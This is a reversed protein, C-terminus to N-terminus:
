QEDYRTELTQLILNLDYGNITGSYDVDALKLDAATLQSSLKGFLDTVSKTDVADVKGDQNLDGPPLPIGTFDFSYETPTMYQTDACPGTQGTQQCFRVAVHKEGKIQVRFPTGAPFPNTLTARASYIGNGVHTLSLPTTLPLVTGDRLYFKVKMTAMNAQAGGVGALKVLFTLDRPAPKLFYYGADAKASFNSVTHLATVSVPVSRTETFPNVSPSTVYVSVHATAGAAPIPLSPYQFQISFGESVQGSLTFSSSGCPQTDTNTISAMYTLTQGPNGYQGDPVLTIQPPNRM